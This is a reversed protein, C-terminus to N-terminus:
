ATMKFDRSKHLIRKLKGFTIFIPYQFVIQGILGHRANFSTYFILTFSINENYILILLAKM